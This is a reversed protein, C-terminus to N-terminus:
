LWDRMGNRMYDSTQNPNYIANSSLGFSTSEYSIDPGWYPSNIENTCCLNQNNPYFIIGIKQSDAREQYIILQKWLHHPIMVHM